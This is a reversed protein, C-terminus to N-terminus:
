EPKRAVTVTDFAIPLPWGVLGKLRNFLLGRRGLDQDHSPGPYWKRPRDELSEWTSEEITLGAAGCLARMGEPYIRWCDVPAEHYPWSVPNVTIVVGGPRCVRAAENVWRWPERVHEIVQGSLVVDFSADQVPIDYEGTMVYTLRDGRGGGWRRGGASVESKLDATEWSVPVQVLRRYSSPDDDPGIELVSAGPEIYKLAYREFLLVSNRHVRRGYV